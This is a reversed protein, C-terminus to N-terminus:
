KTNRFSSYIDSNHLLNQNLDPFRLAHRICTKHRPTESYESGNPHNHHSWNPPSPLTICQHMSITPPDDTHMLLLTCHDYSCIPPHNNNTTCQHMAPAPSSTGFHSLTDSGHSYTSTHLICPVSCSHLHNARCAQSACHGTDYLTNNTHNSHIPHTSHSFTHLQTSTYFSTSQM